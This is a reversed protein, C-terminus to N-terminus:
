NDVIECSIAVRVVDDNKRGSLFALLPEREKFATSIMGDMILQILDERMNQTDVYLKCMKNNRTAQVSINVTGM